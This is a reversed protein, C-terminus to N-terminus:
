SLRSLHAAATRNQPDLALVRSFNERASLHEGRIFECLALRELIQSEYPYIELALAATEFAESIKNSAIERDIKDLIKFLSSDNFKELDDISQNFSNRVYEFKGLDSLIFFRCFRALLHEPDLSLIKDVLEGAESYRNQMVLVSVLELIAETHFRGQPAESAFLRLIQEASTYRKVRVFFAVRTSIEQWRNKALDLDMSIGM